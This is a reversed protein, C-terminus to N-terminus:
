SWGLRNRGARKAVNLAEDARRLFDDGSEGPRYLTGGLTATVRLGAGPQPMAEVAARLTEARAKASAEDVDALVVVFEDGGFRCPLDSRRVGQRLLRGVETLVADGATHGLTDDVSRGLIPNSVSTYRLNRDQTYVTVKSGRLATEYRQLRENDARLRANERRLQQVEAAHDDDYKSKQVLVNM